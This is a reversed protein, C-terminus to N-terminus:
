IILTCSSCQSTLQWASTRHEPFSLWRSVEREFEDNESDAVFRCTALGVLAAAVSLVFYVFAKSRLVAVTETRGLNRIFSDKTGSSASKANESEGTGNTGTHEGTESRSESQSESEDSNDSACSSDVRMSEGQYRPHNLITTVSQTRM